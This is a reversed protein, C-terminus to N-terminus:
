LSNVGNLKPQTAVTTKLTCKICATTNEFYNGQNSGVLTIAKFVCSCATFTRQFRSDCSLKLLWCFIHLQEKVTLTICFEKDFKWWWNHLRIYVNTRVFQETTNSWQVKMSSQIFFIENQYISAFFLRDFKWARMVSAVEACM